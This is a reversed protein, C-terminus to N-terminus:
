LTSCMFSTNSGHGIDANGYDQDNDGRRKNEPKQLVFCVRRFPAHHLHHLANAQIRLNRRLTIGFANEFFNAATATFALGLALTFHPKGARFVPVIDKTGICLNELFEFSGTLGSDQEFGDHFIIDVFDLIIIEAQSPSEVTYDLGTLQPGLLTFTDHEDGEEIEDFCADPGRIPIFLPSV